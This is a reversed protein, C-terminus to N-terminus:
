PQILTIYHDDVWFFVGIFFLKMIVYYDNRFGWFFVWFRRLVHEVVDGEVVVGVDGVDVSM